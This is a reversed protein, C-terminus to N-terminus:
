RQHEAMESKLRNKDNASKQERERERQKMKNAQDKMKRTIKVAM